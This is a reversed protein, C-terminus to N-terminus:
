WLRERIILATLGSQKKPLDLDFWLHVNAMRFRWPNTIVTERAQTSIIV